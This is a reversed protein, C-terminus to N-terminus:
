SFYPHRAELVFFSLYAPVTSRHTNIWSKETRQTRLRTKSVAAHHELTPRAPHSINLGTRTGTLCLTHPLILMLRYHIDPIRGRISACCVQAPVPHRFQNAKALSKHHVRQIETLRGLGICAGTLLKNEIIESLCKGNKLNGIARV